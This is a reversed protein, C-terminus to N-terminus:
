CEKLGLWSSPMPSLAAFDNNHKLFALQTLISIHEKCEGTNSMTIPWKGLSNPWPVEGGRGPCVNLAIATKAHPVM